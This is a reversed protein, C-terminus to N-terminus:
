ITSSWPIFLGQGHPSSFTPPCVFSAVISHLTVSSEQHPSWSTCSWPSSSQFHALSPEPASTIRKTQKFMSNITIVSYNKNLTAGLTPLFGRSPRGRPIRVDPHTFVLSILHQWINGLLFLAQTFVPVVQAQALAVTFGAPIYSPCFSIFSHLTVPACSTTHWV